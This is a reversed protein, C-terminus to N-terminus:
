KGGIAKKINKEYDDIADACSEDIMQQIHPDESVWTTRLKKPKCEKLLEELEKLAKDIHEQIAQVTENIKKSHEDSSRRCEDTCGEGSDGWCNSCGSPLPVIKYALSVLEERYTKDKPHDNDHWKKM